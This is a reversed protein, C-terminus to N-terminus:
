RAGEAMSKAVTLVRHDGISVFSIDGACGGRAHFSLDVMESRGALVACGASERSNNRASQLRHTPNHQTAGANEAEASKAM